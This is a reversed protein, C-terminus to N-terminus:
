PISCWLGWVGVIGERLGRICWGMLLAAVPSLLPPLVWRLARLIADTAVLASEVQTLATQGNM